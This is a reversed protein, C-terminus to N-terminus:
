WIAVPEGWDYKEHRSLWSPPVPDEPARRTPDEAFKSQFVGPEVWGPETYKARSKEDMAGMDVKPKIKALRKSAHKNKKKLDTAEKEMRAASEARLVLRARGADEDMIDDDEKNDTRSIAAFIKDNAKDLAEEEKAKREKSRQALVARMRGAEEDDLNDDTRAINRQAQLKAKMDANKKRLEEAERKKRAKSDKAMQIRMRGAEEDMIDDDAHKEHSGMMKQVASMEGQRDVGTKNFFSMHSPAL